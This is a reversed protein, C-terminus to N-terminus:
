VQCQRDCILFDIGNDVCQNYCPIDALAFVQTSSLLLLLLLYKKM